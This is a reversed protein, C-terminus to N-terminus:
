GTVFPDAGFPTSPHRWPRMDAVLPSINKGVHSPNRKKAYIQM